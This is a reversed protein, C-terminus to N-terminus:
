MPLKAMELYLLLMVSAVAYFRLVLVHRSLTLLETLLSLWSVSIWLPTHFTM